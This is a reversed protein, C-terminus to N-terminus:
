RLSPRAEAIVDLIARAFRVPAETHADLYLTPELLELEMLLFRGGQIVGDVRAYLLPGPAHAIVAEAASLLSADPGAPIHIGGHQAQIRFDGQKPTKRVAHSFSGGLFCLSWEGEERIERLFPQVMVTGSSVQDRFWPEEATDSRTTVIRTEYAGASIAPKVVATAWGTERLIDTLSPGDPDDCWHTPVILIGQDELDRMYRKDLNWRLVEPPNWVAAGTRGLLELWRVFEPLRRYYDWCSRIIVTDFSEWRVAADDWAAPLVTAGRARLATAALLDDPAFDPRGRFTVFAIRAMLWKGQEGDSSRWVARVLYGEGPRRFMGATVRCAITM